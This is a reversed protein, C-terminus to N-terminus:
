HVQRFPLQVAFAAGVHAETDKDSVIKAGTIKVPTNVEAHKMRAWQTHKQRGHEMAETPAMCVALAVAVLCLTIVAGRRMTETNLNNQSTLWTCLCVSAVCVPQDESGRGTSALPHGPVSQRHNAPVSCSILGLEYQCM